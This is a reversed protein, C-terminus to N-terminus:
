FLLKTEKNGCGVRQQLYMRLRSEFNQSIGGNLIKWFITWTRTFGHQWGEVFNAIWPIDLLYISYKTSVVATWPFGSVDSAHFPYLVQRLHGGVTSLPLFCDRRQNLSRVLILCTLHCGGSTRQRGVSFTTRLISVSIQSAIGIWWPGSHLRFQWWTGSLGLM